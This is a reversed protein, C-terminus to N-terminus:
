KLILGYYSEFPEPEGDSELGEEYCWARLYTVVNGWGMGAFHDEDILHDVADLLAVLDEGEPDLTLFDTAKTEFLVQASPM